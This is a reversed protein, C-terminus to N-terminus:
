RFFEQPILEERGDVFIIVKFELVGREAVVADLEVDEEVVEEGM